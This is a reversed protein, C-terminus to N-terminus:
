LVCVWTGMATTMHGLSLHRLLSPRITEKDQFKPVPHSIDTPTVTPPLLLIHTQSDRHTHPNNCMLSLLLQPASPTRGHMLSTHLLRASLHLCFLLSLGWPTELGPVLARSTGRTAQGQVRHSLGLGLLIKGEQSSSTHIPKGAMTVFPGLYCM